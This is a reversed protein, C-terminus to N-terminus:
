GMHIGEARGDALRWLAGEYLGAIAITCDCTIRIEGSANHVQCVPLTKRLEAM